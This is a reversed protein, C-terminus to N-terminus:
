VHSAQDANEVEKVIFWWNWIRSCGLRDLLKSFIVTHEIVWRGGHEREYFPIMEECEARSNFKVRFHDYIHVFEDADNLM